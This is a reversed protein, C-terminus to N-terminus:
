LQNRGAVKGDGRKRGTQNKRDSLLRDAMEDTAFGNSKSSLCGRRPAYVLFMLWM